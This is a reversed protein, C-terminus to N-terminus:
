IRVSLSGGVIAQFRDQTSGPGVLRAKSFAVPGGRCARKPRHTPFEGARQITGAGFETERSRVSIDRRPPGAARPCFRGREPDNRHTPRGPHDRCHGARNGWIRLKQTVFRRGLSTPSPWVIKHSGLRSGQGFFTTFGYRDASFFTTGAETWPNRNRTGDDAGGIRLFGGQAMEAGVDPQATSRPRGCRRGPLRRLGAEGVLQECPSALSARVRGATDVLRSLLGGRHVAPRGSRPAGSTRLRSRV